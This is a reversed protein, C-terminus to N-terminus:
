FFFVDNEDPQVGKILVDHYGSDGKANWTLVWANDRAWIGFSGDSPAWGASSDFNYNGKLYIKDGEQFDQITDSFDDTTVLIDGSDTKDFYFNDDDAGGYLQDVGTSGYLNDSGDDGKLTDNGSGGELNDDGAGGELLDAGANGKLTDNDNGGYIKDDGGAGDIEDDGGKGYITDASNTATKPNGASDLIDSSELNITNPQDTGTITAM